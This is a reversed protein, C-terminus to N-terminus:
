PLLNLEDTDFGDAHLKATLSEHGMCDFAKLSTLSLRVQM